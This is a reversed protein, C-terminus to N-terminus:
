RARWLGIDKLLHDNLANLNPGPRRGRPATTTWQQPVRPWLMQHRCQTPSGLDLLRMYSIGTM